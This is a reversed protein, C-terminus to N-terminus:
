ILLYGLALLLTLDAGDRALLIMIAVLVIREADPMNGGFLNSLFAFPSQSKNADECCEPIKQTDTEEDEIHEHIRSANMQQTPVSMGSRVNQRMYPPM